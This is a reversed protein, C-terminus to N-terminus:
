TQFGSCKMKLIKSFKSDTTDDVDLILDAEVVTRVYFNEILEYNADQGEFNLEFYNKKIQFTLEPRQFILHNRFNEWVTFDGIIWYMAWMKM